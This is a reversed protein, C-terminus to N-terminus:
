DSYHQEDFDHRRKWEVFYFKVSPRDSGFLIRKGPSLVLLNIGVPVEVGGRVTELTSSFFWIKEVNLFSGYCKCVFRLM